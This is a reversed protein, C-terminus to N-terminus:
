GKSPLLCEVFECRLEFIPEMFNLNTGWLRAAWKAKLSCPFVPGLASLFGATRGARLCGWPPGCSLSWAISTPAKSTLGLSKLSSYSLLFRYPLSATQLVQTTPLPGVPVSLYPLPLSM